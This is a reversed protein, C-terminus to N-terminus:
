LCENLTKFECEHREVLHILSLRLQEYNHENWVNHNWSGAIHSQFMIMGTPNEPDSEDVNHISINEQQIGDHGFFVKRNPWILNGNHEYHLALYDFWSSMNFKFNSQPSCLWGPFRFGKPIIGVDLWETIMLDFRENIKNESQLEFFECEGYKTPSSTQHHHGHGAIEFYPISNLEQIWEKNKSLPYDQHYNSPIFLVFKADFEENLKRLWKETPDGLIRWGKQPHCDDISITLRVNM